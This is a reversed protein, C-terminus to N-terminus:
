LVFCFSVRYAQKVSFDQRTFSCSTNADISHFVAEFHQPQKSYCGIQTFGEFNTKQKLTCYRM